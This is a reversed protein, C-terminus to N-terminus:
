LPTLELQIAEPVNELDIAYDTSDNANLQVSFDDSISNVSFFDREDVATSFDLIGTYIRFYQWTAANLLNIKNKVNALIGKTYFENRLMYAAKTVFKIPLTEGRFLGGYMKSRTFKIATNLWGEPAQSLLEEDVGGINLRFEFKDPQASM